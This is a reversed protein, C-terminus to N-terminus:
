NVNELQKLKGYDLIRIKKNKCEIYNEDKLIKLAKSVTSRYAGIMNAIEQHTLNLNIEVIKNSDMKGHQQSLRLLLNVLRFKVDNFALDRIQLMLIKCKRALQTVMYSYVQPNNDLIKQFKEAKVELARAPEIAQTLTINNQDLLFSIEGFIDGARIILVTREAGTFDYFVHKAKGELLLYVKQPSENFMYILDNEEFKKEEGVAAFYDFFINEKGM